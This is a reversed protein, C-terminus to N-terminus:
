NSPIRTFYALIQDQFRAAYQHPSIVTPDEGPRRLLKVWSEIHKDVTYGRLYDIIGVIIERGERNIGVLLSYDMVNMNSLFGTICPLDIYIQYMQFGTTPKPMGTDIKMRAALRDLSEPFVFLPDMRIKSRLNGDLLVKQQPEMLDSGDLVRPLGKLDYAEEPALCYFVNEVIILDLTERKSNISSHTVQCITIDNLGM